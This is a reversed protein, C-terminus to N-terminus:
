EYASRLNLHARDGGGDPRDMRECSKREARKDSARVDPFSSFDSSNRRTANVHSLRRDMRGEIENSVITNTERSLSEPRRVPAAFKCTKRILNWVRPEYVHAIPFEICRFGDRTFEIARSRRDRTNQAVPFAVHRKRENHRTNAAQPYDHVPIYYWRARRGRRSRSLASACWRGWANNDGGRMIEGVADRVRSWRGVRDVYGPLSTEVIHTSRQM